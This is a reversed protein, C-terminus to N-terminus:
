TPSNEILMTPSKKSSVPMRNNWVGEIDSELLAVIDPTAGPGYFEIPLLINVNNGNVTVEAYNGSPDAETVPNTPYAYLNLGGAHGIPDKSIFRGLVGQSPDSLRENLGGRPDHCKKLDPLCCM